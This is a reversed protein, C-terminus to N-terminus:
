QGLQPAFVQLLVLILDYVGHAIASTTTNTRKRLVGFV